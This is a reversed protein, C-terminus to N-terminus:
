PFNPPWEGSYPVPERERILSAFAAELESDRELRAVALQLGLAQAASQIDHLEDDYDLINADVLWGVTGVKPVLEHM